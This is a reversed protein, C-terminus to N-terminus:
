RATEYYVAAWAPEDPDYGGRRALTIALGAAAPFTMVATLREDFLDLPAPSRLVTAGARGFVRGAEDLQEDAGGTPLLFALDAAGLAYMGSTAAERTEAGEAPIRAVEKLLLAAELAAAWGARTGCAVASRPVYNIEAVAEECWPRTADIALQARAPVEALVRQLAPDETVAAWLSLAAVVAGCFVQSHTLARQNLVEFTVTVEASRGITSMPSSTLAVYPRPAGAAIAEVLDRFEGSSSVAVLVDGPRWAFRGKALLGSPVACVEPGPRGGGLSALWLATAVYFAAGNGSVVLRRVSARRVLNAGDAFGGQRELTAALAMPVELVDLWLGSTLLGSAGSDSGQRPM